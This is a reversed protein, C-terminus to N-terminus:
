GTTGHSMPRRIPIPLRVQLKTGIPANREVILEGGITRFRERIGLLGLSGRKILANDPIGIGDDTIEMTVTETDTDTRLVISVNKAQAHRVVNTIAEQAARFFMLGINEDLIPFPAIETLQIRIASFEEVFRAHSEISASLSLHSM